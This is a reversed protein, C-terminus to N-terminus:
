LLEILKKEFHDKRDLPILGGAAEEHGGGIGGASECAIKLIENLDISKDASRASIKIRGDSLAYGIVARAPLKKSLISVVVGIMTDRVHGEGDM